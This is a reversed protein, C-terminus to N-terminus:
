AEVGGLRRLMEQYAEEVNGMDRRFRDKDLKENTDADWFRCTDPSIEDALILEGQPTIGFELKFDVLTVKRAKLYDVLIENIKRGYEAMKAVIEPTALELVEIHSDNILPDGLDDDKYYFEVVAKPLVTGEALGLRKALSGAAINRVVVELLVIEVKKVLQENDNMKEVFHTPIGQANLMEMFITSIANNLQGKGTITGKKEGNFATADDKYEVIYLDSNDTLYVKKAKGEYLMEGKTM